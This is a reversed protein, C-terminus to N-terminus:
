RCMYADSPRLSNFSDRECLSMLFLRLPSLSLTMVVCALTMVVYVITMVVLVAYLHIVVVVLFLLNVEFLGEIVRIAVLFYVSMKTAPPTILTLVATGLIGGGFLYKGGFMGSLWGSIFGLLRHKM